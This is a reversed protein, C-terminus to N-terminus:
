HPLTYNIFSDYYENCLPIEQCLSINKAAVAIFGLCETYYTYTINADGKDHIRECLNINSMNIALIYYCNNISIDKNATECLNPDQKAFYSLCHGNNAYSVKQFYDSYCFSINNKEAAYEAFCGDIDYYGYYFIGHPICKEEVTKETCGIVLLLIFLVLPLLNLRM